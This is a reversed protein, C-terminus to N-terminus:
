VLLQKKLERKEKQKEKITEAIAIGTVNDRNENRKNKLERIEELLIRYDNAIAEKVKQKVEKYNM